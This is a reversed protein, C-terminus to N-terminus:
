PKQSLDEGVKRWLDDSTIPTADGLAKGRKIADFTAAEAVMTWSIDRARSEAVYGKFSTM